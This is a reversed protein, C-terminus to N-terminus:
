GQWTSAAVAPLDQGARVGQREGYSTVPWEKKRWLQHRLLFTPLLVFFGLFRLVSMWHPWYSTYLCDSTYAWTCTCSWHANPRVPGLSEGFPFPTYTSKIPWADMIVHCVRYLCMSTICSSVLLLMNQLKHYAASDVFCLTSWLHDGCHTSHWHLVELTSSPKTVNDHWLHQVIAYLAMVSQVPVSIWGILM